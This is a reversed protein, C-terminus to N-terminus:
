TSNVLVYCRKLDIFVGRKLPTKKQTMRLSHM